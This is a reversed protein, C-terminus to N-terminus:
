SIIGLEENLIMASCGLIVIDSGLAAFSIQTDAALTPMVHQRAAATVAQLYPQGLAVVPGALAIQHM